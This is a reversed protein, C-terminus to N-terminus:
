KLLIMKRSFSRTDSIIRYIYIGSTLNKDSFRAYYQGPTKRENVLIAVENGLLDYVKLEVFSEKDVSYKITTENNFPNPFNQELSFKDALVNEDFVNTLIGFTDGDIVCGTLYKQPGQPPEYNYVYYLGIGEILIEYTYAWFYNPNFVTDPSEGFEIKKRIRERGFLYLTDVQKVVGIWWYPEQERVVWYDGISASLYYNLWNLGFPDQFVFLNTDILYSPYRNFFLFLNGEDGLSDDVILYSQLGNPTMYEWLNGVSSPFFSRPDPQQASINIIFLFAAFINISKMKIKQWLLKNM